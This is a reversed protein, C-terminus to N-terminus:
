ADRNEREDTVFVNKFPTTSFCLSQVSEVIMMLKM